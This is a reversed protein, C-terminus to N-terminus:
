RRSQTTPYWLEQYDHPHTWSWPHCPYLYLPSVAFVFPQSFNCCWSTTPAHLHYASSTIEDRGKVTRRRWIISSFECRYRSSFFIRSVDLLLESAVVNAAVRYGVLAKLSQYRPPMTGNGGGQRGWYWSTTSKPSLHWWTSCWESMCRNIPHTLWEILKSTQTGKCIAVYNRVNETNGDESSGNWLVMAMLIRRSQFALACRKEVLVSMTWQRVILCVDRHLTLWVSYVPIVGELDVLSIQVEPHSNQLSLRLVEM